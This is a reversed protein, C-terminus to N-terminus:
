VMKHEDHRRIILDVIDLSLNLKRNQRSIASCDGIKVEIKLNIKHFIEFITFFNSIKDRIM